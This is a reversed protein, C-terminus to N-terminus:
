ITRQNMRLLLCIQWIELVWIVKQHHGWTEKLLLCMALKLTWTPQWKIWLLILCEVKQGWQLLLQEQDTNRDMRMIWLIVQLCTVQLHGVQQDLMVLYHIQDQCTVKQHHDWIVRLLDWIVKQHLLDWIVRLLDWQIGLWTAQLLDWIVRLLDWIVKQHLLDWIVRLLDWQIELWTAQLLDWIVKQHLLDWIVRQHHDWIVRQHHDWIVRQHHDWIVKQHDWVLNLKLPAEQPM